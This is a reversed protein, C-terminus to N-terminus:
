DYKVYPQFFSHIYRTETIKKKNFVSVYPYNIFKINSNYAGQYIFSDINKVYLVSMILVIYTYSIIRNFKMRFVVVLLDVILIMEFYRMYVNIRSSILSSSMFVLYLLFGLIYIKLFLDRISNREYVKYTLMIPVFVIIRLLLSLIEFSDKQTYLDVRSGILDLTGFFSFLLSYLSLGVGLAILSIIFVQTLTYKKVINVIPIIFLIISSFHLLFLLTCYIYYKLYRRSHILPILYYIFISICVAQRIGSFPYVLFFTCYYLFLCTIPKTSYKRIFLWVLIFSVASYLASLAEPSLNLTKVWLYSIAAFGVEQNIYRFDKTELALGFSEASDSFLFIYSFYDTGQGYRFTVVLLLIVFLITSVGKINKKGFYEHISFLLLIIFLVHYM